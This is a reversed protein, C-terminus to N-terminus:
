GTVRSIQQLVIVNISSIYRVLEFNVSYHLLVYSISLPTPNFIVSNYINSFLASSIPLLM